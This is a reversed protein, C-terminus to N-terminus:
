LLGVRVPEIEGGATAARRTVTQLQLVIRNEDRQLAAGHQHHARPFHRQALGLAKQFCARADSHNRGFPFAFEFRERHPQHATREARGVQGPAHEDKGSGVVPEGVMADAHGGLATANEGVDGIGGALAIEDERRAYRAMTEVEGDRGAAFVRAKRGIQSLLQFVQKLFGLLVTQAVLSCSYVCNTEQSDQKGNM